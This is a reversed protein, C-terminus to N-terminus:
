ETVSLIEPSVWTSAYKLERGEFLLYHKTGVLEKPGRTVTFTTYLHRVDGEYRNTGVINLTGFVEVVQSIDNRLGDLDVEDSDLKPDLKSAKWFSAKIEPGVKCAQKALLHPMLDSVEVSMYHFWDGVVDKIHVDYDPPDVVSWNKLDANVSEMTAGMKQCM